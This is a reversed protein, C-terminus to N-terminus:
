NIFFVQAQVGHKLYEVSLAKLNKLDYLFPTKGERYQYISPQFFIRNTKNSAENWIELIENYTKLYDFVVNKDNFIYSYNEKLRNVLHEMTELEFFPPESVFDKDAFEDNHILLYYQLNKLLNESADMFPSVILMLNSDIATNNLQVNKQLKNFDQLAIELYISKGKVKDRHINPERYNFDMLQTAAHFSTSYTKAISRVVIQRAPAWKSDDVRVKENQTLELSSRITAGVFLASFIILNLILIAKSYNGDKNFVWGSLLTTM